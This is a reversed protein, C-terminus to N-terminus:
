PTSVAAQKLNLAFRTADLYIDLPALSKSSLTQIRPYDAAAFGVLLQQLRHRLARDMGPRAAYTLHPISGVDLLVRVQSIDAAPSMGAGALTLVAADAQGSVVAYVSSAQGGTEILSYDRDRKLNAAALRHEAALTFLMSRDATAIIRNRLDALSRIPSDKRTILLVENDPQNCALPQWGRDKQALRVFHAPALVLDYENHLIRQGFTKVDPATVLRLPRKLGSELYRALPQYYALLTRPTQYPMVGLVRERAAHAASTFVLGAIM